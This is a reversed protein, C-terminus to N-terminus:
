SFSRDLTPRCYRLRCGGEESVKEREISPIDGLGTYRVTLSPFCRCDFMPRM